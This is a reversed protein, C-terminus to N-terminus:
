CVLTCCVPAALSDIMPVRDVTDGFLRNVARCVMRNDGVRKVRRNTMCHLRSRDLLSIAKDGLM